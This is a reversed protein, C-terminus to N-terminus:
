NIRRSQDTGIQENEAWERPPPTNKQEPSQAKTFVRLGGPLILSMLSFRMLRFDPVAQDPVGLVVRASLSGV